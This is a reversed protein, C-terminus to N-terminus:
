YVDEAYRGEAKLTAPSMGQAALIEGIAAAVGAAMDRGGCVMVQAGDRLLRAVREGDRRLADQVYIPAPGRSYATTISALRGDERWAALEEAYLADSSPHRAGFFLHMPRGTSNDRAFGALPGIGTGAGILLVPMNGRKPRFVPNPRLFAQVRDGPEMLTLQTSCLGGPQKRVCIEIFGDRSGSALSYFRPVVSGEPVVGILDGPEFTPFTQGTLRQWISAHPLAFRLIATPAQVEAGYDRRSVLVLERTQPKKPQHNLDFETGLVASLARGWRAFDQPSQRDVTDMPLLQQWGRAEAARAVEAAYGCFAPFSRDGFGLIAVPATPAGPLGGLRELFGKASAPAEGEGYTAALLIIRRAKPWQDPAFTSMAATHVQAGVSTLSDQLTDAFAWTSGGESGVLIITDAKGAPVSAQRRSRRGSLWLRIGSWGMIPVGLASLGLFLGLVSAGRGTHLLTVVDGIRQWAGADNWALLAGNGQDVYGEGSATKLTYVDTKDGAAPFTLSRLEDVPVQQLAAIETPLLGSKGSVVAPFAPAGAGEPVLGFTAATMWLATASSLALGWVSLRAIAAHRRGEGQGRMPSFLHRWGGARRALLLLGSLSLLLMAAAGSAVMIRGGDGLFLSRHLNTLWRQLAPTDASGIRAGTEPDITAAAPQDGEYFYVTIKGSPARRIQEVRPEQAQVRSALEAVSMGSSRPANLAEMAPYISLFAGSLAIVGLLIAAILGPWRHLTRIM